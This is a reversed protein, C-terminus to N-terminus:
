YDSFASIACLTNYITKLFKQANYERNLLTMNEVLCVNVLFFVFFQESNYTFRESPLHFCKHPTIM